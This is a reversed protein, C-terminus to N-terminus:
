GWGGLDIMNKSSLAVSYPSFLIEQRAGGYMTVVDTNAAGDESTGYSLIDDLLSYGSLVGSFKDVPIELGSVSFTEVEWYGIDESTNELTFETIVKGKEAITEVTVSPQYDGPERFSQLSFEGTRPNFDYDRGWDFYGVNRGSFHIEVM